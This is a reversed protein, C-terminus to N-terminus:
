KNCYPWKTEVIVLVILCLATQELINRTIIEEVINQELVQWFQDYIEYNKKKKTTSLYGEWIWKKCNIYTLNCFYFSIVMKM